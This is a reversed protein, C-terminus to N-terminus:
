WGGSAGGGGFSGGGGSWGGGSWGGGPGGSWDSYGGPIIIIGGDDYRRRRGRDDRVRRMGKPGTRAEMSKAHQYQSYLVFIVIALWIALILLAEYDVGPQPRRKLREKVADKDGLLVDKIDRVGARIGEGFNGRRFPPLIANRIILGSMLDTMQPELGYGVEIRVKRENPAVILLVGNNTGKQGIKWHRGLRTGYDDISYGQLSNVTVVVLQDSSAAELDALENKIAARDQRTLLGAEDVIRGTLQPFRPEAFAASLALVLLGILALGVILSGHVRGPLSLANTRTHGSEM